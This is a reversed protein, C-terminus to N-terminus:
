MIDRFTELLISFYNGVSAATNGKGGGGARDGQERM